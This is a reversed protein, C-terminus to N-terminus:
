DTLSDVNRRIGIEFRELVDVQVSILVTQFPTRREPHVWFRKLTNENSVFVKFLNIIDKNKFITSFYFGFSSVHDIVIALFMFCRVQEIGNFFSVISFESSTQTSM